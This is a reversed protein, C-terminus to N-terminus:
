DILVEYFFANNLDTFNTIIAGEDSCFQIYEDRSSGRLVRFPTGTHMMGDRDTVYSEPINYMKGIELEVHTYIIM